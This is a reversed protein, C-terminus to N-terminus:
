SYLKKIQLPEGIEYLNNYPSGELNPFDIFKNKPITLNIGTTWSFETHVVNKSVVQIEWATNQIKAPLHAQVTNFGTISPLRYGVLQNSSRNRYWTVSSVLRDKFFGLGIAVKMKKNLEWQYSPNGLRTPYLGGNGRFNSP